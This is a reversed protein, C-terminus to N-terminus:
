SDLLQGTGEVLYPLPRPGTGLVPQGTVEDRPAALEDGAWRWLVAAPAPTVIRRAAAERRWRDTTVEALRNAAAAAQSSTSVGTNGGYRGKRWWSGLALLLPVAIAVAALDGAYVNATNVPSKSSHIRWVVNATLAIVAGAGILALWARRRGEVSTIRGALGPTTRMIQTMHCRRDAM